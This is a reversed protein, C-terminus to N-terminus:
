LVLKVSLAGTFSKVTTKYGSPTFVFDPDGIRMTPPVGLAALQAELNDRDPLGLATFPVTLTRTRVVPRVDLTVQLGALAAVISSVTGGPKPITLTKNAAFLAGTLTFSLLSVLVKDKDTSFDVVIPLGSASSGFGIQKATAGETETVLATSTSDIRGGGNSLYRVTM